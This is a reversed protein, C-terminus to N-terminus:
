IDIRYMQRRFRPLDSPSVGPLRTATPPTESDDAQDDTEERMEDTVPSSMPSEQLDDFVQQLVVKGQSSLRAPRTPSFAVSDTIELEIDASSDVAHDAVDISLSPGVIEASDLRSESETCPVDVGTSALTPLCWLCLLSVAIRAAGPRAPNRQAPTERM